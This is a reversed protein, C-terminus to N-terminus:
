LIKERCINYIKKFLVRNKKLIVIFTFWYLEVLDYIVIKIM